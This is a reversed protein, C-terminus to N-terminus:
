GSPVYRRHWQVASVGVVLALAMWAPRTQAGLIFAAYVVTLGVFAATAVLPFDLSSSSAKLAEAHTAPPPALSRRKIVRWVLRIVTAAALSVLAVLVLFWDFGLVSSSSRESEEPYLMYLIWLTLLWVFRLSLRQMPIMLAIATTVLLLAATTLLYFAILPM